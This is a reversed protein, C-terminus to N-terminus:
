RFQMKDANLKIEKQQCRTLVERLNFDHDELAEEATDGSRFVLIDDAIVKQKPLEELGM